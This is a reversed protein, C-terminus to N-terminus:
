DRGRDASSRLDEGASPKCPSTLSCLAGAAASACSSAETPAYAMNHCTDTAGLASPFFHWLDAIM